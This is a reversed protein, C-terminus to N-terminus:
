TDLSPDMSAAVLRELESLHLRVTVAEDDDPTPPHVPAMPRPRPATHSHTDSVQSPSPRAAPPPVAPIRETPEAPEPPEPWPEPLPEPAPATLPEAIDESRAEDTAKAVPEDDIGQARRARAQERALHQGAWQYLDKYLEPSLRQLRDGMLRAADARGVIALEKALHFLILDQNPAMDSLEELVSVREHRDDINLATELLAHMQLDMASAAESATMKHNATGAQTTPAPLKDLLPRCVLKLDRDFRSYLSRDILLAKRAASMAEERRRSDLHEHALAVWIPAYDPFVQALEVLGVLRAAGTSSMITYLEKAASGNYKSM